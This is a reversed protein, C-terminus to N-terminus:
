GGNTQTDVNAGALVLASVAEKFGKWAADDLATSGSENKLEVDAGSDLCVKVIDGRYHQCAFHLLRCGAGLDCNVGNAEIHQRADDVTISNNIIKFILPLHEM